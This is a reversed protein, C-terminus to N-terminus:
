RSWSLTVVGGSRTPTAGITPTRRDRRQIVYGAVALAAGVTWLSITAVRMTDYLTDSAGPDKLKTWAYSMVAFTAVGAGFTVAGAIALQRPRTSSHPPDLVIAVHLPTRDAVEIARSTEAYGPARAVIVHRGPPLHITRPAFQEDPAFSSVSLQVRASPPAVAIEVPAVDVTAFREDLQRKAEGVWDPAPDNATARAECTALFIEAQPWLERRLYSRASARTSHPPSSAIPRRSRISRRASGAARPSRRAM